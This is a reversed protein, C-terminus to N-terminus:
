CTAGVVGQLARILVDSDVPKGLHHSFTDDAYDAGTDWGSIAVAPVTTRARLERVLEYGTGDPLAIDSVIVDCPDFCALAASISDALHVEHGSGRLLRAMASAVMRNDDVLLIRLRAM